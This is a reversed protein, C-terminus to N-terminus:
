LFKKLRDINDQELKIFRDALAQIEKDTCQGSNLNKTMETVGMTNGKILMDAVHSPNNSILTNIGVSMKASVKNMLSIDKPESNRRSLEVCSENAIEEYTQLQYKLEDYIKNDNVKSLLNNITEVGMKAGRYIESLLDVTNQSNEM